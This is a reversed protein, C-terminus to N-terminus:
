QQQRVLLSLVGVAVLMGPMHTAHALQANGKEQSTQWYSVAATSARVEKTLAGLIFFREIVFFSLNLAHVCGVGLGKAM